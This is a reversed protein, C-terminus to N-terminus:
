TMLNRSVEVLRHAVTEVAARPAEEKLDGNDDFAQHAQPISKQEPIVIMNLNGLIMRVTVLTRLGGLGGPSTSLLAAVKGSYAILPKEEPQPRSTWDIANKLVGTISSNYEPAAILFGQHEWMLQKLRKANDPLGHESELDGDYLPMAYDRLDIQTVVAGADRAMQAATCILKKNFSGTRTSGAFALIKPQNM